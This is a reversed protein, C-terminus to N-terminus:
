LHEIGLVTATEDRVSDCLTADDILSVGYSPIIEKMKALWAGSKLEKAFCKELM